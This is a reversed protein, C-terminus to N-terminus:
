QKSPEVFADHMPKVTDLYKKKHDGDKDKEGKHREGSACYLPLMAREGGTTTTLLLLLLLLLLFHVLVLLLILNILLFSVYMDRDIRRIIRRDAEVDVYVKLNMQWGTLPLCALSKDADGWM